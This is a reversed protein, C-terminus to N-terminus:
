DIAAQLRLRHAEQAPSLSLSFRIANHGELLWPMNRVGPQLLNVNALPLHAVKDQHYQVVWFAEQPGIVKMVGKFKQVKGILTVFAFFKCGPERCSITRRFEDGARVESRINPTIYKAVSNEVHDLAEMKQVTVDVTISNRETKVRVVYFSM